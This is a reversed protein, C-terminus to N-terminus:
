RVPEFRKKNSEMRDLWAQVPDVQLAQAMIESLVLLNGIVSQRVETADLPDGHEFDHAADIM